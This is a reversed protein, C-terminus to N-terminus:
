GQEATYSHNSAHVALQTHTSRTSTLKASYSKTYFATIPDNSGGLVSVEQYLNPPQM